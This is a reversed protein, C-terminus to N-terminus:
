TYICWKHINFNMLPFKFHGTICAHSVEYHHNQSNGVHSRDHYQLPKAQDQGNHSCTATNKCVLQSGRWEDRSTYVKINQLQTNSMTFISLPFKSNLFIFIFISTLQIPHYIILQQFHIHLSFYLTTHWSLFPLPGIWHLHKSQIHYIYPCYLLFRTKHKCTNALGCSHRNFDM